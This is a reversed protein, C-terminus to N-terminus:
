LRRVQGREDDDSDDLWSMRSVPRSLPDIPRGADTGCCGGCSRPVAPLTKATTAIDDIEVGPVALGVIAGATAM